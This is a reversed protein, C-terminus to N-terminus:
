EGGNPGQPAGPATKTGRRWRYEDGLQGADDLSMPDFTVNKAELSSLALTM